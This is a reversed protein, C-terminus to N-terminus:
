SSSIQLRTSGRSNTFRRGSPHVASSSCASTSLTTCAPSTLISSPFGTPKTWSELQVSQAVAIFARRPTSIRPEVNLTSSQARSFHSLDGSVRASAVPAPKPVPRNNTPLIGSPDVSSSTRWAKAWKPSACTLKSGWFGPALARAPYTVRAFQPAERSAIAWKTSPGKLTISASSFPLAAPGASAAGTPAGTRLGGGTARGM